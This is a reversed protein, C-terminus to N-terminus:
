LGLKTLQTSISSQEEKPICDFFKHLLKFGKELNQAQTLLKFFAPMDLIAYQGKTIFRINKGIQKETRNHLVVNIEDGKPMEALLKYYELKIERSINKCQFNWPLRGNKGEEANMIDVKARDRAMSEMRALTAHKFGMEKLINVVEVEFAYGAAKNRKGITKHKKPNAGLPPLSNLKEMRM